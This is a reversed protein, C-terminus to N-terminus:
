IKYVRKKNIIVITVVIISLIGIGLGIFTGTKPNDVTSYDKEEVPDLSDKKSDDDIIDEPQNNEQNEVLVPDFSMVVGDYNGNNGINGYPADFSAAVYLKNNVPNIKSENFLVHGGNNIKYEYKALLNLNFDYYYVNSRTSAVQEIVAIKDELVNTSISSSVELNIKKIINYNKDLIAIVGKNNDGFVCNETCLGTNISLLLYDDLVDVDNIRSFNANNFVKTDIINGEKSLKYLTTSGTTNNTGSIIYNDDVEVIQTIEAFQNPFQISKIIEGDANLRIVKKDSTTAPAILYNGDDELYIFSRTFNDGSANSTALTTDWVVDGNTNYKVVHNVLNTSGLAIFTEDDVVKVSYLEEGSNSESTNYWSIDKVLNNDKNYIAIVGDKGGHNSLTGFTSESDGVVVYGGDDFFDLDYFHDIKNGGYNFGVDNIINYEAFVNLTCAFFFLIFGIIKKM